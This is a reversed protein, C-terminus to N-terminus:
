VAGPAAPSPLVRCSVPQRPDTQRRLIGRLLGALDVCWAFVAYAGMAVSRKKAMMLVPPTGALVLWTWGSAVGALVASGLVLLLAWWGLVVLLKSVGRWAKGSWPQGFSARLLEGAGDVYHSRWRKRVLKLLPDTHGYHRVAVLGLREMRWGAHTLRLGLELEECAHLNRNTFYGVSEIAERRFMGGGNLRDVLGPQADVPNRQKRARFEINDFNMDEILGGVGALSPDDSLRQMAALVWERQLEMDGDILLIFRGRAHQFGLQAGVGCSRDRRDLLQVVELGQAQALSVTEDDSLSDALLLQVDVGRTAQRATEATRVINRAENLAKIIVTLECDARHM